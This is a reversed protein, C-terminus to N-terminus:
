PTTGGVLDLFPGLDIPYRRTMASRWQVYELRDSDIPAERLSAEVAAGVERWSGEVPAPREEPRLLLFRGGQVLPGGVEGVPTAFALRALESSESRVVTMLTGGGQADVDVGHERAVLEFPTGAALAAQAGELSGVDALELVRLRVRENALFWARVCRETLLQVIADARLKRRYTDLDMELTREVHQALTPGGEGKPLKERLAALARELTADVQAPDITVGLREAELLAVRALVVYEFAERTTQSDRLWLRELLERVDVPEGGVSGLTLRQPASPAAAPEELPAGSEAAAGTPEDAPPREQAASPRAPPPAPREEAPNSVAACGFLALALALPPAQLRM